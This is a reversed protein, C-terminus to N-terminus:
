VGIRFINASRLRVNKYVNGDHIIGFFFIRRLRRFVSTKTLNIKSYNMLKCLFDTLWQPQGHYEVAVCVTNFFVLVIVSWYFWQTKVAHRIAFRLRKEARWFQACSGGNKMRSKMYSSRGFGTLLAIKVM